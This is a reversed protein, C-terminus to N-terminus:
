QARGHCNDFLGKLQQANHDIDHRELVRQRGAVGMAQRKAPPASLLREIALALAEVDGAAVLAGCDHDVLEPIGAIYTSVVPVGAALAEMIVVPLGEAFSPVVVIKASRMASAVAAGSQMGAFFVSDAIGTTECAQKLEPLLEGSGIILTRPHVGRNHLMGVAEILVPLGKQPALRGVFCLDFNEDEARSSETEWAAVELGCRVIHVRSWVEAPVFRCIQSRGYCSVAVTFAADEVKGSLDLAEVNDFEEPGHITFSYPIRALRGALRAVSASNTGFHAHVHNVREVILRRSFWCAEVWCAGARILRRQGGRTMRWALGWTTLFARPQRVATALLGLLLEFKPAGLISVTLSAEREDETGVYSQKPPRISHRSINLGLRELAEIERRIFTHSPAPYQNVLYAVRM